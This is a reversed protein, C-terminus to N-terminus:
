IGSRKRGRHEAQPATVQGNWKLIWSASRAIWSTRLLLEPGSARQRGKEGHYWAIVLAVVFGLALALIIIRELQTQWDSRSAVVDPVQILAFAFAVYAIAWQVLKRQRLRALPGAMDTGWRGVGALM